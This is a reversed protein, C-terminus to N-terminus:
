PFWLKEAIVPMSCQRANSCQPGLMPLANRWRGEHMSLFAVAFWGLRLVPVTLSLQEVIAEALQQFLISEMKSGM